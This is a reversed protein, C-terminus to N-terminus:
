VISLPFFLNAKSFAEIVNNIRKMKVDKVCVSNISGGKMAVAAVFYGSGSQLNLLDSLMTEEYIVAAIIATINENMPSVFRKNAIIAENIVKVISNIPFMSCEGDNNAM